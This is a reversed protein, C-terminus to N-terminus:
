QNLPCQECVTTFSFSRVLRGSCIRSVRGVKTQWPLWFRSSVKLSTFGWFLSEVYNFHDFAKISVEGLDACDDLADHTQSGGDQNNLIWCQGVMRVVSLNGQCPLAQSHGAQLQWVRAQFTQLRPPLRGASPKAPQLPSPRRAQHGRQVAPPLRVQSRQSGGLSCGEGGPPILVVQMM